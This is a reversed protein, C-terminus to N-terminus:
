AQNGTIEFRAQVKNGKAGSQVLRADISSENQLAQKVADLQSFDGMTCVLVLMGDRFQLEEIRAGAQMLRKGAFMLLQSFESGGHGQRLEEIRNKLQVRVKGPVVRAGPFLQQYLSATKELLREHRQTLWNLEAFDGALKILLALVLLAAVARYRGPGLKDGTAQYDGQLLGASELPASERLWGPLDRGAPQVVVKGAGHSALREALAEDGVVLRAEPPQEHLWLPLMESDITIGQYRGMRILVRQDSAQVLVTVGAPQLPLLLYDPLLADVPLGSQSCSGLWDDIIRKAVYAYNVRGDRSAQLLAFHLDDVADILEDEVAYPIAALLKQRNRVPLSIARSVVQEGPVIAIVRDVGADVPLSQLDGAIGADVQGKQDLKVWQHPAAITFYFQM